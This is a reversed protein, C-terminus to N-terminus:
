IKKYYGHGLFELIGQDRLIQLQQRIKDRIHHNNPYKECLENEFQYVENLQFTRHPIKQICCLVDLTWSRVKLKYDGIFRIKKVKSLVMEEPILNNNKILCIKGEEPIKGFQINCGVWGARRATPGLPKRKEIIEPVFFYRPVMILDHVKFDEKGYHLFFFNPNNYMNIRSLMTDYAGDSVFYGIVGSKSKLEFEEHCHPCYFDAVPRNNPFHELNKNGCCPCYVNQGVWNETIVRVKQSNSRYNDAIHADMQLNM